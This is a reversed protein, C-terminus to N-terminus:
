KAVILRLKRIQAIPHFGRGERGELSVSLVSGSSPYSCNVVIFGVFILGARM